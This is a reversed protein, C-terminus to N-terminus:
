GATQVAAAATGLRLHVARLLLDADKPRPLGLRKALASAFLAAIEQRRPASWGARRGHYRALARLAPGDVAAVVEPPLAAAAQQVAKDDAVLRPVGSDADDYVVLTAAALDGLRQFRGSLIM